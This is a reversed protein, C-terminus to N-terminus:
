DYVAFLQPSASFFVFFLFLKRVYSFSKMSLYEALPTHLFLYHSTHFLTFFFFSTIKRNFPELDNFKKDSGYDVGDHYLDM